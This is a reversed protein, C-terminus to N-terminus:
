VQNQVFRVYRDMPDFKKLSFYGTVRCSSKAVVPIAGVLTTSNQLDPIIKLMSRNPNSILSSFGIWWLRGTPNTL